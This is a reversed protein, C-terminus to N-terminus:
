LHVSPSSFPLSSSSAIHDTSWEGWVPPPVMASVSYWMFAWSPPCWLDRCGSEPSDLWSAKKEEELSMWFLWSSASSYISLRCETLTSPTAPVILERNSSLLSWPTESSLIVLHWGASKGCMAMAFALFSWMGELLGVGPCKNVSRSLWTCCDALLSESLLGFLVHFLCLLIFTHYIRSCKSCMAPEPQLNLEEGWGDWDSYHAWGDGKSLSVPPTKCLSHSASFIILKQFRLVEGVTTTFFYM